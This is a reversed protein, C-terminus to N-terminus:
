KTSGKKPANREVGGKESRYKAIRGARRSGKRTCTRAVRGRRAEGSKTFARGRGSVKERTDM